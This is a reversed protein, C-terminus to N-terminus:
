TAPPRVPPGRWPSSSLLAVQGTREHSVVRVSWTPRDPFVVDLRRPFLHRVARVLVQDQWVLALVTVAASLTHALVMQEDVGAPSGVSAHAHHGTAPVLESRAGILHVLLQSAVAIAAATPLRLLRLRLSVSVAAVAGALLLMTGLGPLGGGGAAHALAGFLVAELSAVAARVRSTRGAGNAGGSMDVMMAYETGSGPRIPSTM